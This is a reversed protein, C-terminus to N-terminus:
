FIWYIALRGSAFNYSQTQRYTSGVSLQGELTFEMSPKYDVKWMLERLIYDGDMVYGLKGELTITSVEFKYMDWSAWISHSEFNQPSYYLKTVFRFNSYAFEYGTTLRPMLIYGARLQFDNGKNQDSIDLYQFYGSFKLTKEYVYSGQLRYFDSKYRIPSSDVLNPSYLITGADSHMFTFALIANNNENYFISFDYENQPNKDLTHLKGFGISSRVYKHLNIFINGKFSTFTRNQQLSNAITSRTFTAGVALFSNFGVEIRTGYNYFKFGINDSYFGAFPAVGLYTPFNELFARFGQKPLWKERLKIMSIENSDLNEWVLMRNIVASASDYETTKIYADTLFLNAAFDDPEQIVIEKFAEVSKLSDDMAFLVKARQMAVNYDYGDKLLNSYIELAKEYNKACFNVDGYEVLMMNTPQAQRLYEEYYELAEECKGEQFLVRGVELRELLAEEAARLKQFEINSSFTQVNPNVPDIKYAQDYYNQALDFDKRHLAVGGLSILVDIDNKRFELVEKLLKEAKDLDQVTWNLIQANFLKYDLNRPNENVLKEIIERSKDYDKIWASLRAYKYMVAPDQDDPNKELYEKILEFAVDYNDTLEYYDILKILSTKDDKNEEVKTKLNSIEQTYISDRYNQLFELKENYKELDEPSQSIIQLQQFAEELRKEKVLEDVLLFRTKNDKPKSKLLRYYRDIAFEKKDFGRPSSDRVYPENKAKDLGDLAEQFFPKFSLATEFAKIANRNNGLWYTFYGYKSWLRWDHPYRDVFKKLIIEGKKIHGNKALVETYRIIEDPSANDDRELYKDYWEESEVWKEMHKYSKAIELYNFPNKPNIAIERLYGDIKKYLQEHWIRTTESLRKNINNKLTESATKDSASLYFARRYDLVAKEYQVRIEFCNGRLFYNEAKRPEDTVVKNLLDIAEGYRGAQMHVLAQQRLESHSQSYILSM